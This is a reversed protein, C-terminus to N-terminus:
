MSCRATISKPSFLRSKLVLRIIGGGDFAKASVGRFDRVRPLTLNILRDLFEYMKNGRLTVSCGVPVGERLKFGAISKKAARVMPKQGTILSLEEVAEEIIKKDKGGDSLRGIGMNIVIKEIRPIQMDNKYSFKSRLSPVVKTKYVEKLRPVM